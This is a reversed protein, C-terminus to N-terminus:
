PLVKKGPFPATRLRARVRLVSNDFEAEATDPDVDYPLAYCRDVPEKGEARFSLCISKELVEANLDEKRVGPLHQDFVLQTRDDSLYIHHEPIVYYTAPYAM